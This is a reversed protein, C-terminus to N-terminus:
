PQEIVHRLGPRSNGPQYTAKGDPHEVCDISPYCFISKGKQAATVLAHQESFRLLPTENQLPNGPFLNATAFSAAPRATMTWSRLGRRPIQAKRWQDEKRVVWTPPLWGPSVANVLVGSDALAGAVLRTLANLATKSVGYAPYSDGMTELQGLGSSINIVRGSTSQRMLGALGQCVRLPGYFNAAMTVQFCEMSQELVSASRDNEFLTGANNVLVDLRGFETELYTALTKVSDDDTM